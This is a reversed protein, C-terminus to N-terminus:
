EMPLPEILERGNNRVNNVATSVPWLDLVGPTAPLLEGLVGAGEQGPDLWAEQLDAPVLLPARDHIRGDDGEASTTLITYSLVWQGEPDKWFEYLGALALAQGERGTLYFPQKRPKAEGDRPQPQYWEYFGDAPVLARRRAFAKRFSPKEGVTESRANILRNGISPDKAWSPILGWRATVVERRTAAADDDRRAVVLPESKTPAVNYDEGTDTYLDGLSAEFDRELTSPTRSTAYRGCM